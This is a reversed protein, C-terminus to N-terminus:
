GQPRALPMGGAKGLAAMREAFYGGDDDASTSVKRNAPGKNTVKDGAADCPCTETEAYGTGFLVGIVGADRMKRLGSFDKDGILWQVWSDHWHFKKDTIARSATNGLPVGELVVPVDAVRVFERVFGVLSEKEAPSYVNQRSPNEGEQQEGNVTLAAFDLSNVAVDLYFNSAARASDRVTADDPTDRSIDVVASAWGNFAYGLLVKPAYKTALAQWAAAFGILNNPLNKLEPLGSLAIRAQVVTPREGSANLDKELTSYMNADLSVAAPENAAGVRKLFKRVNNWYIKMLRPSTLIKRLEPGEADVGKKSMGLQRISYLGMYPFLGAAATQKVFDKPDQQQPDHSWDKKAAADGYYIQYYNGGAGLRRASGKQYEVQDQYGLSEVKPWGPPAPPLAQAKNDGGPSAVLLVAVAIAAAVFVGAVAAIVARRRRRRTRPPAPADTQLLYPTDVGGTRPPTRHIPVGTAALGGPAFARNAAPELAAAFAGPTPYREAPDRALARMVVDDLEQPLEPAVDSLPTADESVRAFLVAGLEGELAFPPQGALLEYLVAGAAWVDTASSLAGAARTVQEPAMYAPTGIAAATATMRAGQAGVVKAIGFDAVKVLTEDAFLLNEPKIDRHLVGKRHAHELGHLAGTMVACAFPHSLPGLARRDPLTGGRMREMVFACLEEDEVYDYVRVLHPHDLSALLRAEAAFRARAEPAVLLEPSLRKIAVDRDLHRHHAGYVVAFAGRGLVPGIEYAPLAAGLKEREVDREGATQRTEEM